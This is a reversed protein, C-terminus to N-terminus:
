DCTEHVPLGGSLEAIVYSQAQGDPLTWRAVKMARDEWRFSATGEPDTAFVVDLGHSEARAIARQDDGFSLTPRPQTTDIGVKVRDQCVFWGDPARAVPVWSAPLGAVEELLAEVPM